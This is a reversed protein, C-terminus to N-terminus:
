AALGPDNIPLFESRNRGHGKANYLARDAARTLDIPSASATGNYTSIGISVTLHGSPSTPHPLSLETVARHLKRAVEMAGPCNTGPLIVAFEEGGYRATFDTIRPLANRLAQAIQTLCADGTPHGWTDNLQKFYDVDIMLLSLPHMSRNAASCERELAHDFARRNPIGTLADASVLKELTQKAALLSEEAEIGRSQTLTNLIGYGTIASLVALSGIYFHTRSVSIGLLLLALSLFIPSGSRVIRTFRGSPRPEEIFRPPTQSVLILLLLYPAAILLDLIVLDHTPRLRNHIAPLITNAWLFISAVYFFRREQPQGAGFLRITAAIALFLNLADFLHSIFLASAPKSGGHLSVVSYVQVYFVASLALALLVNVIRIPRFARPDFQISVALLLPVAYLTSFLIQLGPVPDSETAGLLETRMNLLMAIAHYLIAIALLWWRTRMARGALQSTGICAYIAALEALVICLTSIPAFHIPLLTAVLGHLLLWAAVLWLTSALRSPRVTDSM